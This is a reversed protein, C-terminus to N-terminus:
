ATLRVGKEFLDLAAIELGVLASGNDMAERALVSLIGLLVKSALRADVERYHTQLMGTRIIREYLSLTIAKIRSRTDESVDESSGMGGSLVLGALGRNANIYEMQTRLVARLTVRADEPSSALAQAIRSELEGILVELTAAALEGKTKFYLYFTGKAVGAASVIDEVSTAEVGRERFLRLAISLFEDRLQQKRREKWSVGSQGIDENM